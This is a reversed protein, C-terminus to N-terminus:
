KRVPPVLLLAKGFYIDVLVHVHVEFIVDDEPAPDGFVVDPSLEIHVFVLQFGENLRQPLLPSPRSRSWDPRLVGSRYRADPRARRYRQSGAVGNADRGTGALAAESYPSLALGIFCSSRVM